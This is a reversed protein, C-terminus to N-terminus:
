ENLLLDVHLGFIVLAAGILLTPSPISQLRIIDLIIGATVQGIFIILSLYLAPVKSVATNLFVIVLIGVLGGMYIYWHTAFPAIGFQPYSTEARGLVLFLMISLALGTAYHYFICVNTNTSIAFKANLTRSIVFFVGGMFALITPLIVFGGIMTFTGLLILLLGFLKRNSFQYKPIKFHSFHDLIFGGFGQGLLGLALIASISIHRYAYSACLIAITNIAGGLYPSLPLKPRILKESKYWIFLSIPIFGVVHLVVMSSFLGYELALGGNMVILLSVLAGAILALVYHM